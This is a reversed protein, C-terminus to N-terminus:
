FAFVCTSCTYWAHYKALRLCSDSGFLGARSVVRTCDIKMHHRGQSSPGIECWKIGHYTPQDLADEEVQTIKQWVFTLPRNERTSANRSHKCVLIHQLKKTTKVSNSPSIPGNMFFKFGNFSWFFFHVFRVTRCDLKINIEKQFLQKAHTQTKKKHCGM